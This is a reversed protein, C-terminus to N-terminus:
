MKAFLATMLSAVLGPSLRPLLANALALMVKPNNKVLDSWESEGLAASVLQAYFEPESQTAELVSALVGHIIEPNEKLFAAVKPNVKM